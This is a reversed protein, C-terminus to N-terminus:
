YSGAICGKIANIYANPQNTNVRVFIGEASECHFYENAPDLTIRCVESDDSVHRVIDGIVVDPTIEVWYEIADFTFRNPKM